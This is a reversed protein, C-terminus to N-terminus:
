SISSGKTMRSPPPLRQNMRPAYVLASLADLDSNELGLEREEITPARTSSSVDKSVMQPYIASSRSIQNAETLDAIPDELLQALARM